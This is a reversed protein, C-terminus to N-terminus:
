AFLGHLFWEGDDTGYRHDRYIWATEGQPSEAVYYDRRVDSGDWWGSEIREPGERLVWPQAEILAALPQAERFLWLPRPAPTPAVASPLMVAPDHLRMAHEPRHEAHVAIRRVADEGLRARLRDLLPVEPPAQGEGRLLELNHGALPAVESSALALAAVPAPLEIRSLRERLVHMLHAPTRSPAALAFRAETLPSDLRRVLAHEHCLALDMVRVGLGRAGLWGALDGVLRQLAFSLAEVNEVASVLELRSAFRPPPLFPLRPDDSRGLCRDLLAVLAPGLRRALGSRPLKRAEGFSRIGASSLTALSEAGLGFHELALPALAPGLADLSVVPRGVGADALALAALPTPAVGFRATFGTSALRSAIAELLVERGGFLRLSGGISAVLAEPAELSVMPTFALVHTALQELAAEEAALDRPQRMLGPALPYAASLLMGERLGAERAAKDVAVLRPVRGGSDVVFPRADDQARARSFVELALAPFRVAMWLPTPGM